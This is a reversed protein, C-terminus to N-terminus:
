GVPDPAPHTQGGGGKVLESTSPLPVAAPAHHTRSCSVLQPGRGGASTCRAGAAAPAEYGAFAAVDGAEEVLVAVATGVAVDRAGDPVLLAALVGEEQAEWEMTAKDTEVEALIDGPAVSDGEAKRWAM